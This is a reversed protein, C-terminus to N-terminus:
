VKPNRGDNGSKWNNLVIEGAKLRVDEAQTNLWSHIKLARVMAQIEWRPRNGILKRAWETTM